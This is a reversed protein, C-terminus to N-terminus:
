KASNWGPQGPRAAHRARLRLHFKAPDEGFQKLIQIALRVCSNSNGHSYVYIGNPLQTYYEAAKGIPLHTTLLPTNGKWCAPCDRRTVRGQKILEKAIAVVLGKWTKVPVNEGSSMKVRNPKRRKLPRSALEPLSIVESASALKKNWGEEREDVMSASRLGATVEEHRDGMGQEWMLIDAKAKLVFARSYMRQRFLAAVEDSGGREKLLEETELFEDLEEKIMELTYEKAM